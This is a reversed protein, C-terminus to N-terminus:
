AFALSIEIDEDTNNECDDGKSLSGDAGSISQPKGLLGPASYLFPDKGGELGM